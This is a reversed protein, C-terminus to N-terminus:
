SRGRRSAIWCLAWLAAAAGQFFCIVSLLVVRICLDIQEERTLFEIWPASLM